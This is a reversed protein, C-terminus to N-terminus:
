GLLPPISIFLLKKITRAVNISMNVPTLMEMASQECVPFTPMLESDTSEFGSKFGRENVSRSIIRLSSIICLRLSAPLRGTLVNFVHNLNEHSDQFSFIYFRFFQFRGKVQGRRERRGGPARGSIFRCPNHCPHSFNKVGQPVFRSKLSFDKWKPIDKFYQIGLNVEHNYCCIIM